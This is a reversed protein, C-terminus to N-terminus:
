IWHWSESLCSYIYELIQIATSTLEAEYSGDIVLQSVLLYVGKGQVLDHLNFSPQSSDWANYCLDLMQQDDAHIENLEDVQCQRLQHYYWLQFSGRYIM